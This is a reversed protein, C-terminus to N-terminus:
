LDEARIEAALRETSVAHALRQHAHRHYAPEVEITVSNRACRAAALGTTGTGGFPDLVTDGVFSFMRILPEVLEVPYPAPHSRTSAGRVTVIQNFWAKHLREDIASLVRM